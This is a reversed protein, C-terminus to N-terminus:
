HGKLKRVKKGGEITYINITADKSGTAIHQDNVFYICLISDTHDTKVREIQNLKMEECWKTVCSQQNSSIRVQSQKASQKLDRNVANNEGVRFHSSYNGEGYKSAQMDLDHPITSHEVKQILLEPTAM